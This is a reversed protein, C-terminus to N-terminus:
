AVVAIKSFDLFTTEFPHLGRFVLFGIAAILGPLPGALLVVAQKWTAIERATGTAVAGLLPIFLIRIDRYGFTLMALAHGAEHIIIGGILIVAYEWNGANGWLALSAALGVSLGGATVNYRPPRAANVADVQEYLSALLASRNIGNAAASQYPKALKFQ